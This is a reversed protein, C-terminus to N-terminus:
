SRVALWFARCLLNDLRVSFAAIDEEEEVTVM